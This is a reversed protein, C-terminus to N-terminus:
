SRRARAKSAAADDAAQTGKAAPAGGGTMSASETQGEDADANPNEQAAKEQEPTMGGLAVPKDALRRLANAVDERGEDATKTTGTVTVAGQPLTVLEAPTDDDPDLAKAATILNQARAAEFIPAVERISQHAGGATDSTDLTGYQYTPEPRFDEDEVYAGEAPRVLDAMDTTPVDLAGPTGTGESKVTADAM